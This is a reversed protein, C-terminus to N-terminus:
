KQTELYTAVNDMDADSLMAAMANMTPNKRAGSKFDMLQKKTYNAHQGALNPNVAQQSHGGEGHCGACGKSKYTAEGAAADGAIAPISALSMATGFIAAQLLKM